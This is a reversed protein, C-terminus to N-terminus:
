SGLLHGEHGRSDAVNPPSGPALCSRPTLTQCTQSPSPDLLFCPQATAAVPLGILVLLCCPAPTRAHRPSPRNWELIGGSLHHWPADDAGAAGERRETEAVAATFAVRFPWGNRPLPLAVRPGNEVAVSRPKM